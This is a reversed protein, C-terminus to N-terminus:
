IQKNTLLDGFFALPNKDTIKIQGPALGMESIKRM